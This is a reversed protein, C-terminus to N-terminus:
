YITDTFCINALKSYIHFSNFHDWLYLQMQEGGIRGVGIECMLSFILLEVVVRVTKQILKNTFILKDILFEM